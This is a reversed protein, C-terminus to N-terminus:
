QTRPYQQRHGDISFGNGNATLSTLGTLLVTGGGTDVITIGHTSTLSTLGTLKM